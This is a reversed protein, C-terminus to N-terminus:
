TTRSEKAVVVIDTCVLILLCGLTARGHLAHSFRPQALMEPCASRKSVAPHSASSCLSLTTTRCLGSDMSKGSTYKLVSAWLPGPLTNVCWLEAM